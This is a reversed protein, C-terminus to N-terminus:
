SLAARRLLACGDRQRGAANQVIAIILRKRRLAKENAANRTSTVRFARASDHLTSVSQVAFPVAHPVSVHSGKVLVQVAALVFSSLEHMVSLWHLHAVVHTPAPFPPPSVAAVGPAHM